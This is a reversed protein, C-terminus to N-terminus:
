ALVVRFLQGALILRGYGLHAEGLVPRIELRAPLVGSGNLRDFIFYGLVLVIMCDVFIFYCVWSLNDLTYIFSLTSLIHM